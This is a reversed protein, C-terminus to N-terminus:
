ELGVAGLDRGYINGVHDLHVERSGAHAESAAARIGRGIRIVRAERAQADEAAVHKLAIDLIWKAVTSKDRTAPGVPPAKAIVHQVDRDVREDAVQAAWVADAAVGTVANVVFVDTVVLGKWVFPGRLVAAVVSM